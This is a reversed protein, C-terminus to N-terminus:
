VSRSPHPVYESSRRPKRKAPAKGFQRFLEVAIGLMMVRDDNCGELARPSPNTEAYAFTGLEDVCGASLWPFLRERIWASLGDIIQPRMKPGMPIGYEESIPKKGKTMDTHRYLNPYPPLGKSGDKLFTILAEGYGGQREVAIRATNYWKGLAHFQIASRPADIKAHLEAVIAGTELDIVGGSTFDNSRGTSTDVAIAYKRGPVPKEWVDIIGDRLGIWDLTRVGHQVFQGTLSPRRTRNRYHKLADRDFYLAGSLMFADNENLPYQQNREVEGLKMAYREYWAADRTPEANWPLFAFGLNREKKTAYLVHFFNGEETEVNGVGNATSVIALRADGRATAPLIATFIQKAYDQRAAEDMLAFTVTDGHGAKKTAPLAQISSILGSEKHRVKIWESPEDSRSPTLVEVHDRLSEPLSNYMLWARAILKKAEDENYSYAVCKSGPRFLLFWLELAMACWTIGLQRAKLCLFIRQTPDFFFNPSWLALQEHMPNPVGMWWDIVASQFLWGEDARPAGPFMWLPDDSAPYMTFRFKELTTPDFADIEAILAKPDSEAANKVRILRLEEVLRRRARSLATTRAM